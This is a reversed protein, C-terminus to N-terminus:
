KFMENKSPFIDTFAVDLALVIKILITLSPTVEGREIKAYYNADTGVKEALEVQTLRQNLRNKKLSTGVYKIISDFSDM